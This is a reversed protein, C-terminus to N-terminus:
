WVDLDSLFKLQLFVEIISLITAKDFVKTFFLKGIEKPNKAPVVSFRNIFCSIDLQIEKIMPSDIEINILRM